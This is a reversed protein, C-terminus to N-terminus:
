IKNSQKKSYNILYVVYATKKEKRHSIVFQKYVCGAMVVVVALFGLLLVATIYGTAQAEVRGSIRSYLKASQFYLVCGFM